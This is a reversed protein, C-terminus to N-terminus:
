LQLCRHLSKRKVILVKVFKKLVSLGNRDHGGIIVVSM